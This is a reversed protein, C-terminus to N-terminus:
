IMKLTELIGANLCEEYKEYYEKSKICKRPKELLDFYTSIRYEYEVIQHKRNYHPLVVLFINHNERIWKQADYLTIKPYTNCLDDNIWEVYYSESFHCGKEDLLKAVELSIYEKKEM